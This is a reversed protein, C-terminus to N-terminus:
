MCPASRKRMSSTTSAADKGTYADPPMAEMASRRASASRPTAAAITPMANYVPAISGQCVASSNLSHADDFSLRGLRAHAELDNASFPTRGDGRPELEEVVHHRRKRAVRAEIDGQLRSTIEPMVEDLIDTNRETGRERIERGGGARAVAMADHGHVVGEDFDGDVEAPAGIVPTRKRAREVIVPKAREGIVSPRAHVHVHRTAIVPVVHDFRGELREAHCQIVCQDIRAHHETGLAGDSPSAIIVRRTITHRSTLPPRTTFPTCNSASRSM